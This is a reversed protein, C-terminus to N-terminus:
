LNSEEWLLIIEVRRNLAREEPTNNSNGPLPRYEGYGGASLRKPEVGDQELFRVVNVARLTSLEWNDHIYGRRQLPTNDTHGEVRVKNRVEKDKLLEAVKPLVEKIEPTLDASGQQFYADNMLTIVLGREDEQVRMKKSIVEPKFLQAAKGKAKGMRRGKQTSPLTEVTNGMDALKGKSLSLGGSLMGFSGTYASLILKFERTVEAYTSAIVIIIFITLLLNNLDGFTTMYGPSGKPGKLKKKKREAM